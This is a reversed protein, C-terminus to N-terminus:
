HSHVQVPDDKFAIASLSPYAGFFTVVNLYLLTSWYFLVSYSNALLSNYPAILDLSWFTLTLILHWQAVVYRGLGCIQALLEQVYTRLRGFRQKLAFSTCNLVNVVKSWARAFFCIEFHSTKTRICGEANQLVCRHCSALSKVSLDM